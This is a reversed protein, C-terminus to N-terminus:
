QKAYLYTENPKYGIYVKGFTKNVRFGCGMLLEEFHKADEHYVKDYDLLFDRFEIIGDAYYWNGNHSYVLSNDKKRYLSRSYKSNAFIRLTDITNTNNRAVYTGTIEKSKVNGCSYFIVVLAFLAIKKFM